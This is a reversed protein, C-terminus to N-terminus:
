LEEQMGLGLLRLFRRISMNCLSAASDTRSVDSMLGDIRPSFGCTNLAYGSATM